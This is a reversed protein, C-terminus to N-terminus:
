AWLACPIRDPLSATVPETKIDPCIKLAVKGPLSSGKGVFRGIFYGLKCAIIALLKRM